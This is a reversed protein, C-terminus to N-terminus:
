SQGRGKDLAAIQAKLEALEKNQDGVKVELIKNKERPTQTRVTHKAQIAEEARVFPGIIKNPYAKVAREMVALMKEYDSSDGLITYMGHWMDPELSRSQAPHYIGDRDRHEPDNLYPFQIRITPKKLMLEGSEPHDEYEDVTIFYVTKREKSAM